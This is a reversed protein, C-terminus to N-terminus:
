RATEAQTLAPIDWGLEDLKKFPLGSIQFRYAASRLLTACGYYWLLVIADPELGPPTEWGGKPESLQPSSHRLLQKDVSCVWLGAAAGARPSVTVSCAAPRSLFSVVSSAVLVLM